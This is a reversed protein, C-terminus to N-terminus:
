LTTILNPTSWSQLIQTLMVSYLSTGKVVWWCVVCLPWSDTPTEQGAELVGDQAEMQKDKGEVTIWRKQTREWSVTWIEFEIQSVSCENIILTLRSQMDHYKIKLEDKGNESINMCSSLSIHCDARVQREYEFGASVKWGQLRWLAELGEAKESKLGCSRYMDAKLEFSLQCFDSVDCEILSSQVFNFSMEATCCGGLTLKIAFYHATWLSSDMGITFM